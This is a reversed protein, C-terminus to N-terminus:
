HYHPLPSFSSPENKRQSKKHEHMRIFIWKKVILRRMYVCYDKYEVMEHWQTHARTHKKERARQRRRLYLKRFHNKKKQCKNPFNMCFYFNSAMESTQYNIRWFRMWVSRTLYGATNVSERTHICTYSTKEIFLVWLLLLLSVLLYALLCSFQFVFCSCLFVCVM